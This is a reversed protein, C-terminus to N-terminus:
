RFKLVSKSDGRTYNLLFDGLYYLSTSLIAKALGSVVLGWTFISFGTGSQISYLLSFVIWYVTFAGILLLSRTILNDSPLIRNILFLLILSISLSGLHTGMHLHFTVDLIVSLIAFIILFRKADMHMFSLYGVVAFISLFGSARFLHEFFPVLAITILSFIWEM